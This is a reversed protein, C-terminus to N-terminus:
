VSPPPKQSPMKYYAIIGGVIALIAIIVGLIILGTPSTAAAIMNASADGTAKAAEAAAKGAAATILAAAEGQATLQNANANTMAAVGAAQSEVAKQNTAAATVGATSAAVTNTNATANTQAIAGLDKGSSKLDTGTTKSYTDSINSAASIGIDIANNVLVESIVSAFVDQDIVIGQANLDGAYEILVNANADASISVSNVQEDISTTSTNDTISKDTATIDKASQPLADLKNDSTLKSEAVAQAVQQQMQSVQQKAASSLSLKSKVDLAVKQKLVAGSINTMTKLLKDQTDLCRNYMRENSGALELCRNLDFERQRIIISASAKAAITSTTMNKKILCNMQQKINSIKAVNLLVTGCGDASMQSAGKNFADAEQKTLNLQQSQQSTNLDTKTDSATYVNNAGANGLGFPGSIYVAAADSTTNTNTSSNTKNSASASQLNSGSSSSGSDFMTSATQKCKQDAGMKDLMDTLNSKFDSASPPTSGCSQNSNPSSM